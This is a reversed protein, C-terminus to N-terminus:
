VGLRTQEHPLGKAQGTQHSLDDADLGAGLRSVTLGTRGLEHMEM